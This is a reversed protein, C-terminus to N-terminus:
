LLMLTVTSSSQLPQYHPSQNGRYHPRSHLSNVARSPLNLRYVHVHVDHVIYLRENVCTYMYMYIHVIYMYRCTYVSYINSSTVILITHVRVELMARNTTMADVEAKHEREMGEM